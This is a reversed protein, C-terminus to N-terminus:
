STTLAQDQTEQRYVILPETEEEWLPYKKMVTKFPKSDLFHQLWAQLHTYPTQDFWKKDVFAFQRIFPFIGIDASSVQEDLLYTHQSLREELHRLFHECQSRYHEKPQEPHRVSYKYHDLHQKFEFDNQQILQHITESADDSSSRNWNQPDNQSLAWQLVDWSEDIVTGDPLILVPVTGKPSHELMHAPKNKLLIDRLIVQAGSYQIAMRARIAYPCRRFSYLLPLTELSANM